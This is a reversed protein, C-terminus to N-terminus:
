KLGRRVVGAALAVDGAGRSSAVSHMQEFCGHPERLLGAMADQLRAAPSPYLTLTGRLSEADLDNPVVCDHAAGVADVLGSRHQAWPFGLPGIPLNRKLVDHHDGVTVEWDIPLHGTAAAEPTADLKV